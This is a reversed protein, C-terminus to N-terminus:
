PACVSLHALGSVVLLQDDPEVDAGGLDGRDDRLDPWLPSELDDAHAVVDRFPQLLAHYDVDFGRHIRDLARQLLRLQHRVALDALDVGADRAAMDTAWASM